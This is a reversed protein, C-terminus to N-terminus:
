AVLIDIVRAFNSRLLKFGTLVDWRIYTFGNYVDQGETAMIALGGDVDEFTVSTTAIPKMKAAAYAFAQTGYVIGRLYTSNAAHIATVVLGATIFGSVNKTPVSSFILPKVTVTMSGASGVASTQAIFAYNQSIAKGYRDVIKIGAVSFAQGAAISVASTASADTIVISTAGDASVTTAVTASAAPAWTGTVLPAIDPTEYWEAGGFNSIIETGDKNTLPVGTNFMQLGSNQVQTYFENALVGVIKGDYRSAKISGIATRITSYSGSTVTIGDAALTLALAASTQIATALNAAYPEAVQVQKDSLYLTDNIQTLPIAVNNQVLTISVTQSNYNLQSAVLAPGTGVVGYDAIIVSIISGNGGVFEKDYGGEANRLLPLKKNIEDIMPVAIQSVAINVSM